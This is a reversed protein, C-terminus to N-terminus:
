NTASLITHIITTYSTFKYIIVSLDQRHSGGWFIRFKFEKTKM